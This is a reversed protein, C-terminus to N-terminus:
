KLWLMDIDSILKDSEEIIQFLIYNTWDSVNTSLKTTSTTIIYNSFMCIVVAKQLESQKRTLIYGLNHSTALRDNLQNEFRYTEFKFTHNIFLCIFYSHTRRNIMWWQLIKMFLKSLVMMEVILSCGLCQFLYM